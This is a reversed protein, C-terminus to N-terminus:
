VRLKHILLHLQVRLKHILVRLKHILLKYVTGRASDLQNRLAIGPTIHPKNMCLLSFLEFIKTYLLFTLFFKLLFM